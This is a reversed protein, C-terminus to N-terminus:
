RRWHIISFSDFDLILGGFSVVKWARQTRSCRGVATLVM